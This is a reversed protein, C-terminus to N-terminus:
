QKILTYEGYPLSFGTFTSPINFDAKSRGGPGSVNEFQVIIKEIGNEIVRRIVFKANLLQDDNAPEDFHLYLRETGVPCTTCIPANSLKLKPGSFLNYDFISNHNSNLNALSNVKEVGNSDIYKYEGILIDEYYQNPGADQLMMIKKLFQVELYQQGNQFVWTGVFQNQFNNIDKLYANPPTEYTLTDYTDLVQAKSTCSLTFAVILTVIKKM